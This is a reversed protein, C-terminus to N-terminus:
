RIGFTRIASRNPASILAASCKGVGAESLDVWCANWDAAIILRLQCQHTFGQAVIATNPHRFLLTIRARRCLYRLVLAVVVELALIGAEAIENRAIDCRSIRFGHAILPASDAFM